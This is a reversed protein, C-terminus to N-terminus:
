IVAWGKHLRSLIRPLCRLPPTKVITEVEQPGIYEHMLTAVEPDPFHMGPDLGSSRRPREEACDFQVPVPERSVEPGGQSSPPRPGCFACSPSPPCPPTRKRSSSATLGCLGWASAARQNRM